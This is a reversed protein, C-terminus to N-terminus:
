GLEEELKSLEQYCRILREGILGALRKYFLLGFASHLRLIQDLKDKNIKMVRSPEACEVSATYTERGALSSWGVAEGPRVAVQATHRAGAFKVNLAGTQLVYFYDAPDGEKIIADGPNYSESEMIKVLEIELEESAGDFLDIERIIM